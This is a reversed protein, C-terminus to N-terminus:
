NKVFKKVLFKPFLHFVGFPYKKCSGKVNLREFKLALPFLCLFTKDSREWSNEQNYSLKKLGGACTWKFRNEIKQFSFYRATKNNFFHFSACKVFATAPPTRYFFTSKFIECFEYSFVQALTQKESFKLRQGCNKYFLFELM